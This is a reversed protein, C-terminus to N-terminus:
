RLMPLHNFSEWQTTPLLSLIETIVQDSMELPNLRRNLAKVTREAQRVDRDSTLLIDFVTKWGQPLNSLIYDWDAQTTDPLAEAVLHDHQGAVLYKVWTPNSLNITLVKLSKM